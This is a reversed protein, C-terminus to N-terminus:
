WWTFVPSGDRKRRTVNEPAVRKSLVCKSVCQVTLLLYIDVGCTVKSGIATYVGLRQMVIRQRHANYNQKLNYLPYLTIPSTLRRRGQGHRTGAAKQIYIGVPTNPATTFMPSRM